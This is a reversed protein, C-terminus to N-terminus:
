PLHRTSDRRNHGRSGLDIYRSSSEGCRHYRLCDIIRYIPWIRMARNLSPTHSCDAHTSSMKLWESIVHFELDFLESGKLLGRSGGVKMESESKVRERARDIM